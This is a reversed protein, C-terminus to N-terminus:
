QGGEFVREPTFPDIATSVSQERIEDATMERDLRSSLYIGESILSANLAYEATPLLPVRGLLAGIWHRQSSNYWATNPDCAHWRTDASGVEFTANMNMDGLTSFYSLPTLRLGGRSGLIKSSEHGDQHGAWTEEIDLSVGGELRVWGLGMEEVSYGSFTRRDEYMDINQYAAGTVTRVDPNGILHLIQTLHYVGMDFLAGGASLSKDVFSPSGYGDVFPRGRRRFGFSRAHYIGGLHGEDLIRKAARTEASYLNALQIHLRRDSDRATQLMDAADRYAGAMPKECYVHKGASLAAVTIPAHKNNHVCIDVADIDERKLLERFDALGLADELRGLAVGVREPLLDSVAVVKAEPIDRYAALHRTGIQGLGIIGVRIPQKM